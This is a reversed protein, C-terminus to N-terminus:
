WGNSNCKYIISIVRSIIRSIFKKSIYPKSCARRGYEIGMKVVDRSGDM